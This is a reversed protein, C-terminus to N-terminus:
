VISQAPLELMSAGAQLAIPVLLGLKTAAIAAAASDDLPTATRRAVSALVRSLVFRALALGIMMAAMVGLAITIAYLDNDQWAQLFQKM